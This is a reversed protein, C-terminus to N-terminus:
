GGLVKSKWEELLKSKIIVPGKVWEEKMIDYPLHIIGM